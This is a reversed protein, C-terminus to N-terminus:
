AGEKIRDMIPEKTLDSNGFRLLLLGSMHNKFQEAMPKDYGHSALWDQIQEHSPNRISMNRKAITEPSFVGYFLVFTILSVGVLIPIAYLIRRIVYRLM